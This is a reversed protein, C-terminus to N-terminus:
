MSCSEKGKLWVPAYFPDAQQSDPPLLGEGTIFNSGKYGM